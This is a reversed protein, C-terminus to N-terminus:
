IRSTTRRRRARAGLRAPDVPAGGTTRAADITSRRSSSAMLVEPTTPSGRAVCAIARNSVIRASRASPVVGHRCGDDASQVLARSVADYAATPRSDSRGGCDAGGYFSARRERQLRLSELAFVADSQVVDVAIQASPPSAESGGVVAIWRRPEGGICM